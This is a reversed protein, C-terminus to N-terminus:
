CAIERGGGDVRGSVDGSPSTGGISRREDTSVHEVGDIRQTM